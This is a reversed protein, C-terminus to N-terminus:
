LTEMGARGLEVARFKSENAGGGYGAKATAM